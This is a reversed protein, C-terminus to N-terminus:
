RMVTVVVVRCALTSRTGMVVVTPSLLMAVV